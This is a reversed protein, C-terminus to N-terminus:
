DKNRSEGSAFLGAGKLREAWNEGARLTAKRGDGAYDFRIALASAPIHDIIREPWEILSAGNALAEELGLEWVDEPRALRYLDFHWLTAEAGEYTEVLAFTPSPAEKAGTLAAIVGRSFTTKGAGLPGFLCIVDGTELLPALRRGLAETATADGLDISLDAM